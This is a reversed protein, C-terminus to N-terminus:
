AQWREALPALQEALRSMERDLQTRTVTAYIQTTRISTHGLLRSITEIPMGHSLALTTAFTHRAMHFTVRKEIGCMRALRALCRNCWSNSPLPFLPAASDAPAYRELIALAVEMLRVSVETGTKHRATDIWWHEGLQVLNKRTLGKLDVFSLGTFCSFLFLDRVLQLSPELETLSMLRILEGETLFGRRVTESRVPYDVFPDGIEVGMRRAWRLLHKLATLYVWITNRRHRVELLLYRHFDTLFDGNVAELAIDPVGCYRVVFRELHRLLSQYKYLTSQSRDVGVQRSFAANHRALLQLLGERRAATGFYRDRVAHPTVRLTTRHLEGYCRELGQTMTDLADNIRVMEPVSGQARHRLPDWAEPPLALRTSFHAREGGITIRGMIPSLGSKLLANRKIFFLVHFNQKIM